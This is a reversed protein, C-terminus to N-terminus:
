EASLYRDRMMRTTEMLWVPIRITVALRRLQHRHRSIQKHNLRLWEYSKEMFNLEGARFAAKYAIHHVKALADRETRADVPHKALFLDICEITALAMRLNAKAGSNSASGMRKRFTATSEDIYGVTGQLSAFLLCNRDGFPWNPNAFESESFKLFIDRRMMLTATMVSWEHLLALYANGQALWQSPSSKHRSHRTRFRTKRDFDTHCFAMGPNASLLETQMQLKRPNQWFDDGECIAIFKGRAAMRCRVGNAYAGVNRDSTLVRILKPYRLQYDFAIERTRDPSCDEGIILEIPFDCRQAIVGEIAEAIFKEHRYALMYVSVLPEVPLASPDSTEITEVHDAM